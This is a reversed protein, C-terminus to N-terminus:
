KNTVPQTTVAQQMLRFFLKVMGFVDFGTGFTTPIVFVQRGPLQCIDSVDRRYPDSVQCRRFVGAHFM